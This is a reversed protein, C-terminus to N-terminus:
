RNCEDTLLMGSLINILDLAEGKTLMEVNYYRNRFIRKESVTNNKMKEINTQEGIFSSFQGPSPTDIM